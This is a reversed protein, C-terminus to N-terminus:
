LIELCVAGCCPCAEHFGKNTPLDDLSAYTKATKLQCRCRWTLIFDFNSAYNPDNGFFCRVFADKTSEKPRRQLTLAVSAGQTDTLKIAVHQRSLNGWPSQRAMEHASIGREDKEGAQWWREDTPTHAHIHKMLTPDIECNLWRSIVVNKNQEYTTTKPFFTGRGEKPKSQHKQKKENRLEPRLGLINRCQWSPCTYVYRWAGSKNNNNPSPHLSAGCVDCFAEVKKAYTGYRKAVKHKKLAAYLKHPGIKHKDLIAQKKLGNKYDRVIKKELNM